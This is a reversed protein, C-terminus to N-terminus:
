EAKVESAAPAASSSASSDAAKAALADNITKLCLAATEADRFRITFLSIAPQAIPAPKPAADETGAAAGVTDEEKKPAIPMPTASFKVVTPNDIATATMGVYVFSNLILKLTTKMHMLMRYKQIKNTNSEDKLQNIKFSGVGREVWTKSTLDFEMLKADAKFLHDENEDGTAITVPASDALSSSADVSSSAKDLSELVEKAPESPKAPAINKGFQFPKFGTASTSKAGGVFHTSLAGPKYETAGAAGATGAPKNGGFNWKMTTAPAVKAAEGDTAAPVTANAGLAPTKPGFSWQTSVAFKFGPKALPSTVTTPADGEAPTAASTAASPAAASAVSTEQTKDASASATTASTDTSDKKDDTAAPMPPKGFAGSFSFPKISFAKPIDKKETTAAGTETAAASSAAPSAAKNGFNIAVPKWNSVSPKPVLDAPPAPGGPM